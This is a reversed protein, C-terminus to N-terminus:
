PLSNPNLQPAVTINYQEIVDLPVPEYFCALTILLVQLLVLFVMIIINKVPMKRKKRITEAEFTGNKQFDSM